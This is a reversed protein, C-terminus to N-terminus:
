LGSSRFAIQAPMRKLGGIWTEDIEVIGKLPVPSGEEMASRVRHGLYWATKHSVGLTRQLQKASIGKKSEGILYIALFWKWLPEFSRPRSKTSSGTTAEWNKEDRTYAERRAEAPDTAPDAALWEEVMREARGSHGGNFREVWREVSGALM